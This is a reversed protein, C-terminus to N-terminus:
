WGWWARVVWVTLGVVALLVAAGIAWALFAFRLDTM